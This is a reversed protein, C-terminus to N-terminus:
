ILEMYYKIVEEDSIGKSIYGLFADDNDFATTGRTSKVLGIYYLHPSLENGIKVPKVVREPSGDINVECKAILELNATWGWGSYSQNLSYKVTKFRSNDCADIFTPRYSNDIIKEGSIVLEILRSDKKYNILGLKDRVIDGLDQKFSYKENDIEDACTIWFMPRDINGGLIASDQYIDDARNNCSIIVDKINLEDTFYPYSDMYAHGEQLKAADVLYEFFTRLETVNSVCLDRNLSSCVNDGLFFYGVKNSALEGTAVCHMIKFLDRFTEVEENIFVKYCDSIYKKMDTLGLENRISSIYGNYAYIKGLSSSFLLHIMKEKSDM